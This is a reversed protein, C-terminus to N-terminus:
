HFTSRSNRDPKTPPESDGNKETFDTHDLTKEMYSM